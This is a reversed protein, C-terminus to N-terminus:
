GSVRVNAPGLLFSREEPFWAFRAARKGADAVDVSCRLRPGILPRAELVPM